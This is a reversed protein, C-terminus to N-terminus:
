QQVLRVDDAWVTGGGYLRLEFRVFATRAPAVAQVAAQAWGQTGAVPASSESTGLYAGSADWFDVAVVAGGSADLPQLWASAVYTGGAQARISSTVSMWRALGGTSSVIKLSRSGSHARDAAWAFTADGNTYYASSPDSEFDADPAINTAVTTPSPPPTSTPPPEAAAAGALRVFVSGFGSQYIAADGNAYVGAVNLFAWRGLDGIPTAYVSYVASGVVAYLRLNPDGAKLGGAPEYATGVLVRGDPLREASFSEYPV